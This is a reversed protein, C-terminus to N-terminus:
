SEFKEKILSCIVKVMEPYDEKRLVFDGLYGDEGKLCKFAQKSRWLLRPKGRLYPEFSCMIVRGDENREIVVTLGHGNDLCACNFRAVQLKSVDLLKDM